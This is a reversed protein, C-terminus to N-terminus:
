IFVCPHLNRCYAPSLELVSVLGWGSRGDSRYSQRPGYLPSALPIGGVDVLKGPPPYNSADRATAIAQYVPGVLMLVVVLGVIGGIVRMVWKMYIGQTTRGTTSTTSTM